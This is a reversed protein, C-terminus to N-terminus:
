HVLMPLEVSDLLAARGVPFVKEWTKRCKGTPSSLNVLMFYFGPKVSVLSLVGRVEAPAPNQATKRPSSFM